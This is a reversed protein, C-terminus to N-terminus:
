WVSFFTRVLGAKATAYTVLAAKRRVEGGVLLRELVDDACALSRAVLRADVDHERHVRSRGLEVVSLRALVLKLAFAALKRAGFHDVVPCREDLLVGDDRNLIAHGLLIPVAPLRQGVANAVLHLEDAVVQEDSFELRRAFPM